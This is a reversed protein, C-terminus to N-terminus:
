CSVIDIIKMKNNRLKLNEIRMTHSSNPKIDFGFLGGESWGQMEPNDAQSFITFSQAFHQGTDDGWLGDLHLDKGNLTLIAKGLKEYSRLYTLSLTPKKGFCLPIDMISGPVTSIWGPKGPRDAYVSWNGTIVQPQTTSTGRASLVSCPRKCIHFRERYQAPHYYGKPSFAMVDGVDRSKLSSIRSWVNCWTLALVDAVAQHSRFDPHNTDKKGMYAWLTQLQAVVDVYDLRPVDYFNLVQRHAPVALHCGPCGDLVSYLVAKPALEHLTRILVEYAVSVAQTSDIDSYKFGFRRVESGIQDNVLTDILILDVNTYDFLGLGSLIVPTPSGGQALNDLVVTSRPFAVRLWHVFRASWACAKDRILHKDKSKKPQCGIGATFSGGLVMVKITAGTALKRMLPILRKWEGDPLLTNFRSVDFYKDYSFIGRDFHPPMALHWTPWASTHNLMVGHDIQPLKEPHGGSIAARSQKLTNAESGLGTLYDPVSLINPCRTHQWGIILALSFNLAVSFGVSCNGTMGM